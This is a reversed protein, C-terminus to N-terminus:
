FGAKGGSGCDKPKGERQDGEEQHQRKKDKKRLGTSSDKSSHKKPLM